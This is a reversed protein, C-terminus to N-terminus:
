KKKAAPKSTDRQQKGVGTLTFRKGPTSAQGSNWRSWPKGVPQGKFSAM